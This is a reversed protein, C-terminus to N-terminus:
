AVNELVRLHVKGNYTEWKLIDVPIKNIENSGLVVEKGRNQGLPFTSGDDLLPSVNLQIRTFKNSPDEEVKIEVEIHNIPSFEEGRLTRYVKRDKPTIKLLALGYNNATKMSIWSDDSGADFLAAVPAMQGAPTRIWCVNAGSPSAPLTGVTGLENILAETLPPQHGYRKDGYSPVRNSLKGKVRSGPLILPPEVGRVTFQSLQIQAPSASPTLTLMNDSPRLAELHRNQTAQELQRESGLPRTSKGGSSDASTKYVKAKTTEAINEDPIEGRRHRPLRYMPTWGSLPPRPLSIPAKTTPPILENKPNDNTNRQSILNSSTIPGLCLVAPDQPIYLSLSIPVSVILLSSFSDFGAEVKVEEVFAPITRLWEKFLDESLEGVQFTDKLRIAFALRPVKTDCAGVGPIGLDYDLYFTSPSEAQALTSSAAGRETNQVLPSTSKEASDTSLGAIPKQQLRRVSLQISRPFQDEQTLTIHIPPPHREM